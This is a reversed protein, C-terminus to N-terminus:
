AQGASRRGIEALAREAGPGNADLTLARATHEGETVFDFFIELCDEPRDAPHLYESWESVLACDGNELAEAADDPLRAGEGCRYMDCHLVPPETPYLNCITFSPSSVEAADGGPLAAVLHRTLTTKGSGLPGHMLISFPAEALAGALAGALAATDEETRLTLTLRM